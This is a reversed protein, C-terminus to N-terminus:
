AKKQNHKDDWQNLEEISTTHLQNIKDQTVITYAHLNEAGCGDVVFSPCIILLQCPM